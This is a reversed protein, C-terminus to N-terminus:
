EHNDEEEADEKKEKAKKIINIIVIVIAITIAGGCIYTLYNKLVASTTNKFYSVISFETNCTKTVEAIQYDEPIVSNGEKNRELQEVYDAIAVYSKLENKGSELVHKGLKVIRGGNEDYYTIKDLNGNRYSSLEKALSVTTVVPYLEDNHVPIYYGNVADVYVEEVHNYDGRFDNYTYKLGSFYLQNDSNKTKRCVTADYEALTRLESGYMFVLVLSEGTSGDSGSGGPVVNFADSATISDKTFTGQIEKKSILGIAVKKVDPSMNAAQNYLKTGESESETTEEQIVETETTEVPTEETNEEAPQEETTEGEIPQEEVPQEEIPQEETQQEETNEEVPQEEIGNAANEKDILSQAVKLMQRRKAKWESYWETYWDDYAFAYADTILDATNNNSLESENHDIETFNYSNKALEKDKNLEYKSFLTGNIKDNYENVKNNVDEKNEFAEDILVLAYNDVSKDKTNIDLVGLYDGNEGASVIPVDSDDLTTIEEVECAALVVNVGDVKAVKKAFDNGGHAIAIIYDVKESEQLTQVTNKAFDIDSTESTAIDSDSFEDDNVVSFIGVKLGAKELVKYTTASHQDLVTKASKGTKTDAFELNDILLTPANESVNVMDSFAQAGYSLDKEGIAVADYGMMGMLSLDPANTTYLSNFTTGTSFDGGDILISNDDTKYQSIASALRAYGGVSKVEGNDQAKKYPLIHDQLDNTFLIRLGSYSEEVAKEEGEESIEDVNEDEGEAIVPTIVSNMALLGCLIFPVIKKM